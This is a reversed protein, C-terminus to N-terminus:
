LLKLTHPCLRQTKRPIIFFFCIFIKIYHSNKNVLIWKPKNHVHKYLFNDQSVNKHLLKTSYKRTPPLQKHIASTFPMITHSLSIVCLYNSFTNLIGVIKIHFQEKLVFEPFIPLNKKTAPHCSSLTLYLFSYCRSETRLFHLQCTNIASQQEPQFKVLGVTVRPRETGM